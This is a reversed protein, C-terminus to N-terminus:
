PARNRASRTWFPKSPFLGPLTPVAIANGDGWKVLRKRIQPLGCFVDNLEFVNRFLTQSCESLLIAPLPTRAAPRIDTWIAASQLLYRCTSAAMGDGLIAVRM